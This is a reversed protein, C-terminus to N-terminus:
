FFAAAMCATTSSRFLLTCCILSPPPSLKIALKDAGPDVALWAIGIARAPMRSEEADGPRFLTATVYAGAGFDSTVPIEIETGSAPVEAVQTSILADTGSTVIIQGAFRPSIKLKATDGVQYAPKDLGIELADPTETSSAAVFWGADFDTSTVAGGEKTIVEFSFHVIVSRTGKASIDFIAATAALERM